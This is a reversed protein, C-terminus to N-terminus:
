RAAVASACCTAKRSPVCPSGTRSAIIVGTSVSSGPAVKSRRRRGGAACRGSATGPPRRSRDGGRGQGLSPNTTASRWTPGADGTSSDHAGPGSGALPLRELRRQRAEVLCLRPGQEHEVLRCSRRAASGSFTPSIISTRLTRGSEAEPTRVAAREPKISLTSRRCSATSPDSRRRPWGVSSMPLHTTRIASRPRHGPRVRHRVHANM